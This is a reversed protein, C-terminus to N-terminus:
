STRNHSIADDLQRGILMWESSLISPDLVVMEELVQESALRTTVLAKPNTGVTWISHQIPM